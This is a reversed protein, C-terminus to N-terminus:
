FSALLGLKDALVAVRRANANELALQVQPQYSSRAEAICARRGSIEAITRASAADGCVRRAARELRQALAQRGPERTLDLDAYPVALTVPEAIAPTACALALVPLVLRTFM